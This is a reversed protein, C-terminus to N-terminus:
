AITFKEKKLEDIIFFEQIEKINFEELNTKFKSIEKMDKFYAEVYYDHNVISALNNINPHELLFRLLDKKNHASIIFHMRLGYGIKSFDILSVHKEIIEEELNKLKEFLTSIPINTEKSIQTLSKRSDDRLHTILTKEKKSLM